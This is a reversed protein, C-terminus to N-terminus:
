YGKPEEPLLDQQFRETARREDKALRRNAIFSVIRPLSKVRAGTAVALVYAKACKEFLEANLAMRIATMGLCVPCGQILLANGGESLSRAASRLDQAAPGTRGLHRAQEDFVQPMAGGFDVLSRGYEGGGAAIAGVDSRAAYVAAHVESEGSAARLLVRQPAADSTGGFWMADRGPMRLSLSGGNVALLKRGRLRDRIQQWQEHLADETTM